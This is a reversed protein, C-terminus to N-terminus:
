DVPIRNVVWGVSNIRNPRNPGSTHPPIPLGTNAWKRFLDANLNNDMCFKRLGGFVHTVGVPDTCTYKWVAHIDSQLQKTSEKHTKGIWHKRGYKEKRQEPTLAYDNIRKTERQRKMIQERDPLYSWHDGGFGGVCVNYTDKRAVFDENVVEAERAYMVDSTDFQELISKTFNHKGHVAFANQLRTGSGMYKIDFEPPQTSSRVGIYIQGSENHTIQYMYYYKM